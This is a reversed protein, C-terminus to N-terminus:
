DVLIIDDEMSDPLGSDVILHADFGYPSTNSVALSATKRKINASISIVEEQTVQMAPSPAIFICNSPKPPALSSPFMQINRRRPSPPAAPSRPRHLFPSNYIHRARPKNVIHAYPLRKIVTPKAFNYSQSKNTSGNRFNNRLVGMTNHNQHAGPSASSIHLNPYDPLIHSINEEKMDDDSSLDIVEIPGLPQKSNNMRWTRMVEFRRLREIRHEEKIREREKARAKEYKIRLKELVAPPITDIKISPLILGNSNEVPTLGIGVMFLLKSKESRWNNDKQNILEVTRSIRLCPRRRSAAAAALRLQRYLRLSARKPNNRAKMKSKKNM